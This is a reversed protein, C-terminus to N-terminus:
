EDTEAQGGDGEFSRQHARTQGGGQKAAATAVVEDGAILVGVDAAHDLKGCVSGPQGSLTCCKRLGACADVVTLPDGLPHLLAEQRNASRGGVPVRRTRRASAAMTSREARRRPQLPNPACAASERGTWGARPWCSRPWCRSCCSRASC